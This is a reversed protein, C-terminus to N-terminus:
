KIGKLKGMSITILQVWDINEMGPTMLAGRVKLANTKKKQIWGLITERCKIM